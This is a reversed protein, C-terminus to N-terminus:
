APSNLESRILAAIQNAASSHLAPHLERTTPSKILQLRLVDSEDWGPLWAAFAFGLSRLAEVAHEIEPQNMLLDVQFLGAEGHAMASQVMESFDTGIHEIAMRKRMSHTDFTSRSKTKGMPEAATRTSTRRLQLHDAFGSIIHCYREPMFIERAPTEVLPQYVVTVALRDAGSGGITLDRAESPLCALMVGTECGGNQLSTKQMVIHATTPFHIFGAFGDAIIDARLQSAMQRMLGAGRHRADVVTTGAEVVTASPNPLHYGIHGVIESGSLTVVGRYRRSRVQDALLAPEYMMRKPYANGYCREICACLGAADTAVVKRIVIDNQM